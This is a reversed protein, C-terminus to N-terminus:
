ATAQCGPMRAGARSGGAACLMGRGGMGKQGGRWDCLWAVASGSCSGPKQAGRGGAAVGLIGTGVRLPLSGPHGPDWGAAGEARGSSRSSKATRAVPQEPLWGWRRNSREADRVSGRSPGGPETGAVDGPETRGLLLLLPLFTLGSCARGHASGGAGPCLGSASSSPSGWGSVPSLSGGSGSLPGARPQPSGSGFAPSSGSPLGWVWAQLAVSPLVGSGHQM